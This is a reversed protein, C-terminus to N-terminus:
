ANKVGYLYATSYRVFSNTGPVDMTISTIASTNSWLGAILSLYATTANTEQAGDISLSKYASGAYNPIYFETNGFTNATATDGNICQYFNMSADTESGSIVSAGDGRIRRISYALATSGNFTMYIHDSTSNADSRGSVKVLLDTYTNPISSFTISAAGGSGVTSSAILTFTDPM